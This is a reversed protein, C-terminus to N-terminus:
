MRSWLDLMLLGVNIRCNMLFLLSNEGTDAFRFEVWSDHLRDQELAPVRFVVPGLRDAVGESVPEERHEHVVLDRHKSENVLLNFQRLWEKDKGQYPQVSELCKWVRPGNQQLCPCWKGIHSKFGDSNSTIPFYVKAKPDAKPCFRDQIDHAQYDLASRLHELFTKISVKLRDSAVRQAASEEYCQRIKGEEAEAADLLTSISQIRSM